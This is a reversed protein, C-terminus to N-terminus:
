SLLGLKDCQIMLNEISSTDFSEIPFYQMELQSNEYKIITKNKISSSFVKNCLQYEISISNNLYIFFNYNNCICSIDVKCIKNVDLNLGLSCSRYCLPCIKHKLLFNKMYM